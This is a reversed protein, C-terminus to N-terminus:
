GVICLTAPLFCFSAKLDAAEIDEPLAEMVCDWMEKTIKARNTAIKEWKKMDADVTAKDEKSAPEVDGSRLKVLRATIEEKEKEMAVVLTHLDMTPMESELSSLKARLTKIEANISHTEEQLTAIQGDIAALDEATADENRDQLTHYM